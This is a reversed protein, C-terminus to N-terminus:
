ELNYHVLACKSAARYFVKQTRRVFYYYYNDHGLDKHQYLAFLLYLFCFRKQYSM